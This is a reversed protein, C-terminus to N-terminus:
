ICKGTYFETSYTLFRTWKIQKNQRDLIAKFEIESLGSSLSIEDKWSWKVYKSNTIAPYIEKYIFDNGRFTTDVAVSNDFVEIQWTITGREDAKPYSIQKTTRGSPMAYLKEIRTFICKFNKSQGWFALYAGPSLSSFAMTVALLKHIM